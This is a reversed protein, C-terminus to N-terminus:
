LQARCSCSSVLVMSSAVNEFCFRDRRFISKKDAKSEMSCLLSNATMRLSPQGSSATFTTTSKYVVAVVLM